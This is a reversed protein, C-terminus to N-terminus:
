RSHIRIASQRGPWLGGEFSIQGFRGTATKSNQSRRPQAKGALSRLRESDYLHRAWEPEVYAILGVMKARKKIM